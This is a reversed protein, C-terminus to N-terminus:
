IQVNQNTTSRPWWRSLILQPLWVLDARTLLLVDKLKAHSFHVFLVIAAGGRLAALLSFAVAAGLYGFRWTLLFSLPLSVLGSALIYYTPIEPRGLQMSFFTGLTRTTLMLVGPSLLLFAPVAGSYESGYIVPILWRAFLCGFLLVCGNLWLSARFARSVIAAAADVDGTIVKPVVAQSISQEIIAVVEVLGKAVAYLGAAAVGGFLAVFYIDVRSLLITGLYGPYSKGGYALLDRLCGVQVRWHIGTKLLFVLWTLFAALLSSLVLEWLAGEFGLSLVGILFVQLLLAAVARLVTISTLLRVDDLGLLLGSLNSFLVTSAAIIVILWLHTTTLDPFLSKWVQPPALALVLVMLLACALAIILSQGAMHAPTYRAKGVLYAFAQMWATNGFLASVTVATAFILAYLGRGEVGLWRALLVSSGFGVVLLVGNGMSVWAINSATSPRTNV